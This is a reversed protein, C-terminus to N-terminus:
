KLKIDTQFYETVKQYDELNLNNDLILSEVKDKDLGTRSRSSYKIFNTDDEFVELENAMMYATVENKAEKALKTFDKAQTDLGRFKTILQYIEDM